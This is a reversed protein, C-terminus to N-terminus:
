SGRGHEGHFARGRYEMLVTVFTDAAGHAGAMGCAEVTGITGGSSGLM